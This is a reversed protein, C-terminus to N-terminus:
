SSSPSSSAPRRRRRERLFPPFLAKAAADDGNAANDARRARAAAREAVAVRRGVEGAAALVAEGGGGGGGGDRERGGMRVVQYNQLARRATEPDALARLLAANASTNSGGRPRPAAAGEGAAAAEVAQLLLAELGGAARVAAAASRRSTIGPLDLGAVGHKRSGTLALAATEADAANDANGSGGGGGGGGGHLRLPSADGRAGAVLELFYVHAPASSISGGTERAAASTTTTVLRQMDRDSSAVVVAFPRPLPPSPQLLARCLDAIADDATQGLPAVLPIISSGSADDSDGPSPPQLLHAGGGGSAQRRPPPAAAAAATAGGAVFAGWGGKEEPQSAAALVIPPRTSATGLEGKNDFAVVTAAVPAPVAASLFALWRAFEARVSSSSPAGGRYAIAAFNTGDVVLVTPQSCEGDDDEDEYRVAWAGPPLHLRRHYHHHASPSSSSSSSSTAKSAVFRRRRPRRVLDVRWPLGDVARASAVNMMTTNNADSSQLIPQNRTAAASKMHMVAARRARADDAGEQEAGEEGKDRAGVCDVCVCLCMSM